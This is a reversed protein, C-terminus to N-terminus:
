DMLLVPKIVEGSKTEAMARNIDKFSYTKVLKDYPFRGQQYFDIIQGLFTNPVASGFFVGQLTAAKVFIGFPTFPYKEGYHPVTVMGCQGAMGLCDIADNLASEVGSTEFSFAAGRPCIEMIKEVSNVEGANICHTAGLDQALALRQENIDVAIIPNAGVIKAAMIASLGVAGSGFVVLSDGAPVKLTNIVAGAGTMIGCGLPALLEPALDRDVKVTNRVPTIVQSAFSSQQFFSATIATGDLTTTHSGDLRTGGFNSQVSNDCVYPRGEFCNPCHNCFGFSIIVRDGPAINSVGIGVEEVIGAGEHGLVAPMALLGQAGIDTHCIGCAEIRVRLEDTKLDDLVIDQLKFEGGVEHLVAAIATTTM